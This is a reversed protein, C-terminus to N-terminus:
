KIFINKQIIDSISLARKKILAAKEGEFLKDVTKSFLTNWRKFHKKEINKLQSLHHHLTMPNGEYEGSFFLINDWFKCMISIHKPWNIHVIENFFPGILKDTKVKEYFANVLLEIDKSNKIDQKM